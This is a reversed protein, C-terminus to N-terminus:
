PALLLNVWNGHAVSVASFPTESFEHALDGESPIKKLKEGFIEHPPHQGRVPCSSPDHRPVGPPDPQVLLQQTQATIPNSVRFQANLIQRQNPLDLLDVLVPVDNHVRM